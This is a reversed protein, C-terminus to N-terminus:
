VLDEVYGQRTQLKSDLGPQGLFWCGVKAEWINPIFTHAVM